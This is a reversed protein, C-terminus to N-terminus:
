EALSPNWLNRKAAPGFTQELRLPEVHGDVFLYHSDSGHRDFAVATEAAKLKSWLHCMFHDAFPNPKAEGVLITRKPRPIQRRKRWTAPSGVYDDGQPDLEMHVNLGYSYLFPDRSPDNPCRFATNHLNALDAETKPEPLELYPALSVTWGPERHAAASHSSRPFRDGHTDAYLMTALGIQRLTNLCQLRRASERVGQVAPLLLGVLTAIIAVVVLLEVLTMGRPAKPGPRLRARLTVIRRCAARAPSLGTM